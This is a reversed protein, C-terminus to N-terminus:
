DADNESLLCAGYLKLLWLFGSFTINRSGRFM